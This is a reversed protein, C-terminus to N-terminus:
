LKGESGSRRYYRKRPIRGSGGLMHDILAKMGLKIQRRVTEVSVGLVEAAERDTLGEVKRLLVTERCKTPLKDIGEQVRRLEDRASLARESQFLDIQRDVADLDAVTDIPVIRARRATNILHNRAVTYVYARANSPIGRQAGMLSKEYIDQRLELVDEAVRSNRRIYSTLARELPLVENVFWSNLTEDDVM